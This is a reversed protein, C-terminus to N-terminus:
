VQPLYGALLEFDEVCARLLGHRTLWVFLAVTRAQCSISKAPNFEIDSFGAFTMNAALWEAHPFLSRLYLWDYFASPPVLPYTRGELEFSTLQGFEESRAKQRAEAPDLMFWDPHPGAFRFRKSAQYVSELPYSADAIAIKLSFASLRRGLELESKSSVELIPGIGIAAAAEHLAVVNKRKQSPALGPNWAFSCYVEEVPHGEGPNPMFIPRSAM